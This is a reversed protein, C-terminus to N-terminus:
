RSIDVLCGRRRRSGHSPRQARGADLAAWCAADLKKEVAALDRSQKELRARAKEARRRREPLPTPALEHARDDPSAPLPAPLISPLAKAAAACAAAAPKVAADLADVTLHPPLLSQTAKTPPVIATTM